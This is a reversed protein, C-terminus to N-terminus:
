NKQEMNAFFSEGDVWYESGNEIAERRKALEDRLWSLQQPPLTSENSFFCRLAERVVEGADGYMGSAVEHQVLNELEQPLSIHLTM